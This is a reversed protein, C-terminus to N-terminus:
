SSGDKNATIPHIHWENKITKGGSTVDSDVKDSYGHKTLLLKSMTPNYDGTLSKNFLELEQASKIEKLIDSFQKSEDKEWDYIISKSREIYVCLGVVMPVAHGAERWGGNVYEWAKDELEKSWSTPRGGAM